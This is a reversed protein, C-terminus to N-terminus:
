SADLARELGTTARRPRRAHSCRIPNPSSRSHPDDFSASRLCHHGRRRRHKAVGRAGRTEDSRVALRTEISRFCWSIPCLPTPAWFLLTSRLFNSSAHGFGSKPKTRPPIRPRSPYHRRSRTFRMHPEVVRSRRRSVLLERNVELLFLLLLLPEEIQFGMQFKQVFRRRQGLCFVFCVLFM